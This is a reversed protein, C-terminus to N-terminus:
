PALVRIIGPAAGILIAGVCAMVIKGMAENQMGGGRHHQWALMGAGAIIAAVALGAGIWSAWGLLISFKEAVGPPPTQGSPGPVDRAFAALAALVHTM